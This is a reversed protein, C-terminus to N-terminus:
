NMSPKSWRLSNEDSTQLMCSFKGGHPTPMGLLIHVGSTPLSKPTAYCLACTSLRGSVCMGEGPPAKPHRFMQKPRWFCYVLNQFACCLGLFDALTQAMQEGVGKQATILSPDKRRQLGAQFIYDSFPIHSAAEQVLTAKEENEKKTPFETRLSDYLFLTKSGPAGPLGTEDEQM